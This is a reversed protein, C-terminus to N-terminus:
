AVVFQDSYGQHPTISNTSLPATHHGFYGLRYTGPTVDSGIIWDITVKSMGLVSSTSTWTFRTDYDNDTRIVSWTGNGGNPQASLMEVTLYTKGLMDMVDNRPNGSVFDASATDGRSYAPKVNSLVDGFQHFLVPHDPLYAPAFDFAKSTYDPLPVSQVDTGNAMADVLEMFTTIYGELTHPGYPTSAGEYRQEQYEEFTTCYSAYGNAPGSYIIDQVQIGHSAFRDRIANRLRRGSMTTLESPTSAIFTDGIRLLQIEIITPQWAYPISIEGTDLLIPKPAQCAKQQDSATRIIGSILGWLFTGQTMNQYFGLDNLGPGDTTGAAFAYGMAPACLSKNGDLVVATMDFVKHRYDIAGSLPTGGQKYLNLAMDAQQQGIMRNSELDSTTWGPGRAICQSGPCTDNSTATCRVNTTGCFAGLTNPSSDGENSQAFAAVFPGNGSVSNPNMQREATYAAYGKNDGNILQNTNNVSTGHVAFWAVLGLDENKANRFGLVTMNKDVDYQYLARENAPNLLYSEPSRNANSNLLEGVNLNVSGEQLSNHAQMIANFIGQVMPQVTEEIWGAVSLEYLTHQLYGGMGSHSHTSSLMVNDFTYIASGLHDGLQQIVRKKIIDGMSQTDTNVFVVRRDQDDVVVYARAYLRQLIGKGTQGEKAYGMLMVQVSPGTIDGIGVGVKYAHTAWPLLILSCAWVLRLWSYRLM